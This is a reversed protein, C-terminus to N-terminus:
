LIHLIRSSGVFSYRIRFLSAGCVFGDVYYILLSLVVPSRPRIYIIIYTKKKTTTTKSKLFGIRFVPPSVVNVIVIFPRPIKKRTYFLSRHSAFPLRWRWLWLRRRYDHGIEPVRHVLACVSGPRSASVFVGPRSATFKWAGSQELGCRNRRRRNGM